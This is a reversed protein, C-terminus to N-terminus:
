RGVLVVKVFDFNVNSKMAQYIDEFFKTMATAHSKNGKGMSYHTLFKAIKKVM